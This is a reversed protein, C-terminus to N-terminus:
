PTKKLEEAIRIIKIGIEPPPVYKVHSLGITMDIIVKPPIHMINNTNTSHFHATM